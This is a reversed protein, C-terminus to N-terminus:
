PSELERWAIDPIRVQARDAALHVQAANRMGAVVSSVSPHRLPYQIAADPLSFGHRAAIEAFHRARELVAPSAPGYEYTADDRVIEASLINANYVSAAVVEVGRELARPLLREQASRDLLTHRGSVMVVDVDCREVFRDLLEVQSMSVGVADIVGQERLQLLASMATTSAEDWFGEPEHLYVIDIRDLGLRRLSGEVSRMVGDHSFDWM